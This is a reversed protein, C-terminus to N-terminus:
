KIGAKVADIILYPYKREPESIRDLRAVDDSTMEWDIAKLNAKLQEITRIGVILSNVAPKRLLYNLAAQAVTANNKEAIQDLVEIVNFLIEPQVPWPGTNEMSTFRTGDPWTQGRRYKGSLFGAYLPSYALIGVSQDLCLPVLEYELERSMLSYMSELTVFREWVNKDSIALAKMMQWGTFNSCGIYRVKGQRVLDDLARLTVELPTYSDYEHLEFLDIYDTGLRKLSADCGELIHKRSLGGDNPGPARGPHVKTIIIAEKRRQGLAKGLIEEALGNSYAEATNFFNIGADLATNVIENADKQGVEGSSKYVGLGGFTGTGLCLESVQIGTRGLFRMKM